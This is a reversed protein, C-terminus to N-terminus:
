QDNQEVIYYAGVVPFSSSIILISCLVLPSGWSVALQFQDDGMVLKFSFAGM